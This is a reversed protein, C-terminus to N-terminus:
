KSANNRKRHRCVPSSSSTEATNPFIAFVEIRLLGDFRIKIADAMIEDDIM